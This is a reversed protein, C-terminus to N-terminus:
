SYAPRKMKLLPCISMCCGNAYANCGYTDAVKKLEEHRCHRKDSDRHECKESLYRFLGVQILERKGIDILHDEIKKDCEKIQEILEQAISQDQTIFKEGPM